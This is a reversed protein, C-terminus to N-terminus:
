SVFRSQIEIEKLISKEGETHSYNISKCVYKKGTMRSRLLQVEVALRKVADYRIVLGRGSQRYTRRLSM